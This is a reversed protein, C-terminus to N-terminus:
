ELLGIPFCFNEWFRDQDRFPIPEIKVIDREAVIPVKMSIWYYTRLDSASLEQLESINIAPAQPLFCTFNRNKVIFKQTWSQYLNM